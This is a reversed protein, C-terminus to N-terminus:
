DDEEGNDVDKTPSYTPDNDSDDPMDQLDEDGDECSAQFRLTSGERNIPSINIPNNFTSVILQKISKKNQSLSLRGKPRNQIKPPTDSRM